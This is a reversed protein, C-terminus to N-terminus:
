LDAELTISRVTLRGPRMQTIEVTPEDTYGPLGRLPIVGTFGLALEPVDVPSGFRRLPIDWVRDAVRVALSTTDVVSVWLSHIRGKRRVVMGGGVDRPLPLTQVRPPSWRGITLNSSAVPLRIKGTDVIFPGFVNGDALCWVEEGEYQSLGTVEESAPSLTLDVADDLLLGREFRELARAPQGAVTRETVAMLENRGNVAVAKTRMGSVRTFATVDQERLLHGFRLNGSTECVALLNADNSFRSRRLAMDQIGDFLHAALLSIPMAVFNGDVDTYRFESIVGANKHSFIAAGENEVIPVGPAAGHTSSKVLVPASTKSLARDSLWYEGQTTFLLMNRGAVIREVAEGGPTDTIVLFAGNAEDLRDDFNWYDGSVSAMWANPLSKFGGVLLRQQYFTGCRPWGRAESIVPEGPAVGVTKKYAVIAADAKNISRGSVAWGDGENGDGSFKISIRNGSTKTVTIGDRVSPLDQVAAEIETRANDISSYTMSRTEEGSVTLQFVTSSGLGVFELEWEAPTGNTYTGGYDFTPLNRFPLEGIEWTSTGKHIVRRPKVDMHFLLLTDLQQAYNLERVQAETYPLTLSDVQAGNLYVRLLGASLLLDYATGDSAVFSIERAADSPLAAIRRTGHRVSFGGQPAVEVNEMLRAGSGFYKLETRDHLLVDLEGSTYTAQLRGPNAVM